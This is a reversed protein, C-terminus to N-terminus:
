NEYLEFATKNDLFKITNLKNWGEPYNDPSTVLLCRTDNCDIENESEQIFKQGMKPIQWDNVFYFKDFGDVWYWNSQYFRNLNKDKQYKGPNWNLNFLLFEHPEGYKKTIIIKDYKSYNNKVFDSVEGYGYQWSESYNIRYDNFYKLLYNELSFLCILFYVFLFTYRFKAFLNQPNIIISYLGLSSLIMPIPLMTISRLVHPAERTLSSPIPALVIWAFILLKSKLDIIKTKHLFALGFLILPLDILYLLGTNPVSFQYQTGGNLFLYSISFHSIYNKSFEKAVYTYKNCIFKSCGIGRSENIKNISGQDLIGVWSYRAQGIPNLLQYFMPLFFVSTLLLFYTTLKLNKKFLVLLDSKFILLLALMMLPTFIRYSNYTWVTLGLFITSPIYYKTSLSNISKLFFYIGSVFFFLALNAEFAARSLFLSWPEVAVLLSSIIALPQYNITLKQSNKVMKWQGNVMEKVLFYTFIVTGIGAFVSPLRVAFTTLGFFFESIATLYIYVPLKYDGYARFITPFLNGWEDKGSKLISYANYGHSIEDWNLSSPTNPLVFRLIGAVVVVLFLYKNDLLIKTLRQQM